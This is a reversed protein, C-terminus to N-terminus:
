NPRGDRSSAATIANLHADLQDRIRRAVTPDFRLRAAIIPDTRMSGDSFVTLRDTILTLMITQGNAVATVAGTIHKVPVGDPDPIIEVAM